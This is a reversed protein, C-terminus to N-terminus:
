KQITVPVKVHMYQNNNLGFTMKIYYLRAMRCYQFDPVLNFADYSKTSIKNELSKLQASELNVSLNLKKVYDGLSKDWPINNFLSPTLQEQNHRVNHITLNHSTTQLQSISKLDEFLERELRLNDGLDKIIKNLKTSFDQFESIVNNNFNDQDVYETNANANEPHFILDHHFEVPIPYKDAKITLVGLEIMISKIEPLLKSNFKSSSSSSAPLNPSSFKFELPIQLKLSDLDNSTLNSRFATPPIYSVFYQKKPTAIQLTGIAKPSSAFSKKM